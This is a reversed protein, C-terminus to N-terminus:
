RDHGTRMKRTVEYAVAADSMVSAAGTRREARAYANKADALAPSTGVMMLAAALPLLM